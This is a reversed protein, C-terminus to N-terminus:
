KIVSEQSLILNKKKKSSKNRLNHKKFQRELKHKLMKNNNLNGKSYPNLFVKM